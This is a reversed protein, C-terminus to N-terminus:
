EVILKGNMESHGQGCYVNCFFPFEGKKDAVFEVTMKKGPMLKENINFSPLAFGHEVDVSEIVLRVKDGQKVRIEAPEFQWQKAMVTIEKVMKATTQTSSTPSVSISSSQNNQNKSFFVIGLIILLVLGILLINERKV